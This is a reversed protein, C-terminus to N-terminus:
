ATQPAGSPADCVRYEWQEEEGKEAVPQCVVYGAATLENLIQSCRTPSMRGEAALVAPSVRWGQPKSLLYALLGRAGFSLRRDDLAANPIIAYKPEDDAQM